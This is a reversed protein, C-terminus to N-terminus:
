SVRARVRPELLARAHVAAEEAARELRRLLDGLQDLVRREAEPLALGLGLGLGFGFGFGFGLWLGM